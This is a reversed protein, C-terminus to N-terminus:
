FVFACCAFAFWMNSLSNGRWQRRFGWIMVPIGLLVVTFKALFVRRGKVSKEDLQDFPFYIDLALYLAMLTVMVASVVQSLWMHASVLVLFVLANISFPM